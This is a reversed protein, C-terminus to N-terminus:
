LRDANESVETLSLDPLLLRLLLRLPFFRDNRSSFVKLALTEFPVDGLSAFPVSAVPMGGREGTNKGEEDGSNKDLGNGGFNLDLAERLGTEGKGDKGMESGNEEAVFAEDVLMGSEVGM